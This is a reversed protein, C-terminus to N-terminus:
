LMGEMDDLPYQSDVSGDDSIISNNDENSDWEDEM